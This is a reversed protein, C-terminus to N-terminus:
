SHLYRVQVRVSTIPSSANGATWAAWWFYLFSAELARTVELCKACTYEDQVREVLGLPKRLIARHGRLARHMHPGANM